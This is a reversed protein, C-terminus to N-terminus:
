GKFLRNFPFAPKEPILQPESQVKLLQMRDRLEGVTIWVRRYRFVIEDHNRDKWGDKACDCITDGLEARKMRLEDAKEWFDELGEHAVPPIFWFFHAKERPVGLLDQGEMWKSRVTEQEVSVGTDWLLKQCVRSLGSREVEQRVSSRWSDLQARYLFNEKTDELLGVKQAFLWDRNMGECLVVKPGIRLDPAAVVRTQRRWLLLFESDRVVRIKHGQELEVLYHYELDKLIWNIGSSDAHLGTLSNFNEEIRSINLSKKETSKAVSVVQVSTPQESYGYSVIQDKGTLELWTKRHWSRADVELNSWWQEADDGLVSWLLVEVNHFFSRQLLDRHFAKPQGLVILKEGGIDKIQGIPLIQPILQTPRCTMLFEELAQAREANEIAVVTEPETRAITELFPNENLTVLMKALTQLMEQLRMAPLSNNAANELRALERSIFREWLLEFPLVPAALDRWIEWGAEWVTQYQPQGALELLLESSSQFLDVIKVNVSFTKITVQAEHLCQRKRELRLFSEEIPHHRNRNKDFIYGDDPYSRLTFFDIPWLLVNETNQASIQNYEIDKMVWPPVIGVLPIDKERCVRALGFAEEGYNSNAPYTKGSPDDLIALSCNHFGQLLEVGKELSRAMIVKLKNGSLPENIKEATWCVIKDKFNIRSQWPDIFNFATATRLNNIKSDEETRIWLVFAKSPIRDAIQASYAVVMTGVSVPTVPLSIFLQNHKNISLTTLYVLDKEVRHVKISHKKMKLCGLIPDLVHQTWRLDFTNRFIEGWSRRDSWYNQVPKKKFSRSFTERLTKEVLMCGLKKPKSRVEIM